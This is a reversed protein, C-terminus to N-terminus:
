NLWGEFIIPKTRIEKAIELKECILHPWVEFVGITSNENNLRRVLQGYAKPHSLVALIKPPNSGPRIEEGYSLIKCIIPNSIEAKSLFCVIQRSDTDTFIFGDQRSSCSWGFSTMQRVIESKQMAEGAKSEVLGIREGRARGLVGWGRDGVLYMYRPYSLGDKTMTTTFYARAFSMQVLYGEMALQRLRLHLCRPPEIFEGPALVLNRIAIQGSTACGGCRRIFELIELDNATLRFAELRAVVM